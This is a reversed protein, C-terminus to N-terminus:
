GRGAEGMLPSTFRLSEPVIEGCGGSGGEGQPSPLAIPSPKGLGDDLLTPTHIRWSRARSVAM